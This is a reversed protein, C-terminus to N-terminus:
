CYLVVLPSIASASKGEAGTAEPIREGCGTVRCQVDWAVGGVQDVM